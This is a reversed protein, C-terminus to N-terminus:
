EVPIEGREAAPQEELNQVPNEDTAVTESQPNEASNEQINEAAETVTEAAVSETMEAAPQEVEATEATAEQLEEAPQSSTQQEAAEPQETETVLDAAAEQPQEATQAAPEVAAAPLEEQVAEVPQPAIAPVDEASVRVEAPVQVPQEEQKVVPQQVQPQVQPKSIEKTQERWKQYYPNKKRFEEYWDRYDAAINSIKSGRIVSNNVLNQKLNLADETSMKINDITYCHKEGLLYSRTVDSALCIETNVVFAPANGRRIGLNVLKDAVFTGYQGAPMGALERLVSVGQVIIDTNKLKDNQYMKEMFMQTMGIFCKTQDAYAKRKLDIGGSYLTNDKLSVWDKRPKVNCFEDYIYLDSPLEAFMMYVVGNKDKAFDEYVEDFIAPAEEISLRRNESIIRMGKLYSMDMLMKAVSKLENNRLSVVWEGLLAFINKELSSKKDYLSVPRTQKVVCRDTFMNGGKYCFNFLPMPYTSTKYGEKGLAGYLKNDELAMTDLSNHAFDWDNLIEAYGRIGSSTSGYDVLNYIDVINSVTDNKQVFANPYVEFDNVAYFGLLMDRLERFNVDKITSLFHYSPLKPAMLYVVNNERADEKMQALEKVTNYEKKDAAATETKYMGIGLSGSVLLVALFIIFSSKFAFFVILGFFLGTLWNAPIFGIFTLFSARTELWKEIFNGTDFLAFQDLYLVTILLTILACVLNQAAGSFSLLLMLVLFVAFIGGAIYLMAENVVGNELVRGNISYVFMVFDFVFLLTVFMARMIRDHFHNTAKLLFEFPKPEKKKNQRINETM